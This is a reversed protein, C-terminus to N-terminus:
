QYSFLPHILHDAALSNAVWYVGNHHFLGQSHLLKVRAIILDCDRNNLVTGNIGCDQRVFDRTLYNLEERDLIRTQNNNM